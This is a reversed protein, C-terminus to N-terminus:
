QHDRAGRDTGSDKAQLRGGCCPVRCRSCGVGMCKVICGDQAGGIGGCTSPRHDNGIPDLDHAAEKGGAHRIYAAAAVALNTRHNPMSAASAIPAKAPNEASQSTATAASTPSCPRAGRRKSRRAERRRRRRRPPRRNPSRARAGGLRTRAGRRLGARRDACALGASRSAGAFNAHRMGKTGETM